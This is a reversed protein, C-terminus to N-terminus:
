FFGKFTNFFSLFQISIKRNVNCNGAVPLYNYYNLIRNKCNLDFKLKILNEFSKQFFSQSYISRGHFLKGFIQRDIDVKFQLDMKCMVYNAYSAPNYDQRSPNYHGIVYTHIYLIKPSDKILKSQWVRTDIEISDM